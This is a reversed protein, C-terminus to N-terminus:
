RNPKYNDVVSRYGQFLAMDASKMIEDVTWKEGSPKSMSRVIEPDNYMGIFSGKLNFVSGTIRKAKETCLYCIFPGIGDPLPTNDTAPAAEGQFTKDAEDVTKDFMALDVAARTRAFPSFANATIGQELYEVALARTLGVVGANATCYEAHKIIDGLWARSTCNIIRGFKNELMYPVAHRCTNFYGKPKVATVKDFLEPTMKEFPSFGFAGAVNVLIDVGGFNDAATDVLKKAQDFDTIDAFCAVAKGGQERISAATTEADGGYREFEEKVWKRQEDSLRALKAEDLQSDVNKGPARNNTVVNAGQEALAFAIARGVGQGSGTVIATKGELYKM